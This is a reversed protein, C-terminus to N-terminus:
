CYELNRARFKHNRVEAATYIPYLPIITYHYNRVSIETCSVSGMLSPVSPKDQSTPLFSGNYAAYFGLVDYIEDGM